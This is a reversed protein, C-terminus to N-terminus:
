NKELAIAATLEVLPNPDYFIANAFSIQNGLIHCLSIKALILLNEISHTNKGLFLPNEFRLLTFMKIPWLIFQIYVNSIERQSM